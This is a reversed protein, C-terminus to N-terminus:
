ELPLAPPPAASAADAPAPQTAPPAPEGAPEPVPEDGEFLARDRLEVAREVVTGFDPPVEPQLAFTPLTREDRIMAHVLTESVMDIPPWQYWPADIRHHTKMTQYGEKRFVLDYDGYWTFYFKVPSVGVEEDNVVVQAGPPRTEIRVVREVCGGVGALGLLM